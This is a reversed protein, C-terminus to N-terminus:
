SFLESKEADEDNDPMGELLRRLVQGLGHGAVASLLATFVFHMWPWLIEPNIVGFYLTNATVMGKIGVVSQSALPFLCLFAMGLGALWGGRHKTLLLASPYSLDWRVAAAPITMMLRMGGLILSPVLVVAGSFYFIGAAPFVSHGTKTLAALGYYLGASVLTSAALLMLLLDLARRLGRTELIRPSPSPSATFFGIRCWALVCPLFLLTKLFWLISVGWITNEMTAIIPLTSAYMLIATGIAPVVASLLLWHPRQCIESLADIISDVTDRGTVECQSPRLQTLIPKRRIYEGGSKLM